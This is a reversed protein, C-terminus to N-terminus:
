GKVMRALTKESYRCKVYNQCGKQKEISKNYAKKLLSDLM